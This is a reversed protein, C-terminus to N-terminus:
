DHPPLAARTAQAAALLEGSLDEDALIRDLEEAAERQRQAAALFRVLGLRLWGARPSRALGRRWEAEAEDSRGAALLAEALLRSAGADGPALAALQRARDIALWTNGGEKALTVLQALAALSQPDRALVREFLSEAEDGRGRLRAIRGLGELAALPPPDTAFLSQFSAEAEDLRGEALLQYARDLGALSGIEDRPNPEVGARTERSATAAPGALYGLAALRSREEIGPEAASGTALRDHLLGVVRRAASDLEGARGPEAALLNTLERPDDVIRYLEPRPALIYKWPGERVATLAAWGLRRRPSESIAALPREGKESRPAFLDVGDVGPTPELGALALVTPAVDALTVPDRRVIGAPLVGPLSLLLPVRLTADYLLVGHTQEGHEGLSEGHDSLLVVLTKGTLGARELGALLRAVQTDVFAIEGDYPREAYLARFSPPPEYPAHPDFLHLWLFFPQQRDRRLWALARGVREDAPATAHFAQELAVDASPGDDYTAFGRNLGFSRHLVFAAVFAATDYGAAAFREALPTMPTTPPPLTMGNDVVGHRWPQLGSLVTWHAPLTLPVPSFANEFRVGEAALRDIAPTEVASAGYCGLHDARLTDISILLVNLPQAVKPPGPACAAALILPGLCLRRVHLFGRFRIGSARAEAIGARAPLRERSM